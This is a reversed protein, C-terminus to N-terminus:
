HLRLSMLIIETISDKCMRTVIYKITAYGKNGPYFKSRVGILFVYTNLMLIIIENIMALYGYM